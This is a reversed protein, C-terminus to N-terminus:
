EEIMMHWDFENLTDWEAETLTAWDLSDYCCENPYPLLMDNLYAVIQEQFVVSDTLTRQRIVAFEYGPYEGITGPNPAQGPHSAYDDFDLEDSVALTLELCTCVFDQFSITDTLIKSADIAYTDAFTVTDSLSEQPGQAPSDSFSLTDSIALDHIM